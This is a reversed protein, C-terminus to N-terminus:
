SLSEKSITQFKKKKKQFLKGLGRVRCKKELDCLFWKTIKRKIMQREYFSPMKKKDEREHLKFKAYICDKSIEKQKGTQNLSLRQICEWTVGDM